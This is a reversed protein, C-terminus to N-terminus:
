FGFVIAFVTVLLGNGLPGVHYGLIKLLHKDASDSAKIRGLHDPPAQAFSWLFSERDFGDPNTLLAGMREAKYAAGSLFDSVFLV